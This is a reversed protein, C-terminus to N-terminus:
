RARRRWTWGVLLKADHTDGGSVDLEVFVSGSRQLLWEVGFALTPAIDFESDDDRRPRDREIFALLAGGGVYPTVNTDPTFTYHVPLVLSVITHDDGIGLEASPMFRLKPILTGLDWHAGIIGQDPDDGLGARIGWGQYGLDAAVVAPVLMLALACLGVGRIWAAKECDQNTRM